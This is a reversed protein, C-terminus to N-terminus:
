RLFLASFRPADGNVQLVRRMEDDYWSGRIVDRVVYALVSLTFFAFFAITFQEAPISFPHQFMSSWVMGVLVLFSAVGSLVSSGALLNCEPRRRRVGLRLALSDILAQLERRADSGETVGSITSTLQELRRGESRKALEASIFALVGILATVATALAGTDMRQNQCRGAEEAGVM